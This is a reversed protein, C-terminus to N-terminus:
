IFLNFFFYFIIVLKDIQFIIFLGIKQTNLISFSKIKATLPRVGMNKKLWSLFGGGATNPKGGDHYNEGGQLSVVRRVRRLVGM